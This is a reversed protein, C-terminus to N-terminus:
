QLLTEVAAYGVRSINSFHHLFDFFCGRNDILTEIKRGKRLEAFPAEQCITTKNESTRLTTSPFMFWYFLGAKIM